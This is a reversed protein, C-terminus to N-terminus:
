INSLYSFRTRQLLLRYKQRFDARKPYLRCGLSYYQMEFYIKSDFSYSKLDTTKLLLRNFGAMAEKKKGTHFLVLARTIRYLYLHAKFHPNEQEFTNMVKESPAEGLLLEASRYDKLITLMNGVYSCYIIQDHLPRGHIFAYDSHCLLPFFDSKARDGSFLRHICKVTSDPKLFFRM